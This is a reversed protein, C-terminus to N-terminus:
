SLFMKGFCKICHGCPLAHHNTCLYLKRHLSEFVFQQFLILKSRKVIPISVFNSSYEFPCSKKMRAGFSKFLCKKKALYKITYIHHYLQISCSTIQKM